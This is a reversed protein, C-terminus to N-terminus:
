GRFLFIKSPISLYRFEFVLSYGQRTLSLMKGLGIIDNFSNPLEDAHSYSVFLTEQVKVSWRLRWKEGALLLWGPAATEM